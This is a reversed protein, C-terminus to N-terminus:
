GQDFIEPLFPVDHDGGLRARFADVELEAGEHHVVVQRPVWLANLLANTAAVTVTLLV